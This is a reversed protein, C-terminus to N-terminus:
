QYHNTAWNNLDTALKALAPFTLLAAHVSDFQVRDISNPHGADNRITRIQQTFAPWYSQFTKFLLDPILAKKSKLVREISGLVRKIRWNQLDSPVTHGAARMKVVLKERLSFALSEATVGIMVAAAKYCQANFTSLAERVYSEPSRALLRRTPSIRSTAMQIPLIVVSTNSLRAVKNLSISGLPTRTRSTKEGPSTVPVSCITSSRLSLKSRRRGKFELQKLAAKQLILSSNSAGDNGVHTSITELLVSRLDEGIM